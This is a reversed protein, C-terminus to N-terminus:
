EFRAFANRGENLEIRDAADEFWVAAQELGKLAKEIAQGIKGNPDNGRGTDLEYYEDVIGKFTEIDNRAQNAAENFQIADYGAPM